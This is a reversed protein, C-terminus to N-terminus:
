RGLMMYFAATLAIPCGAPQFVIGQINAIAGLPLNPIAFSQSARGLADTRFLVGPLEASNGDAIIFVDQYAPPTGIDLAGFCAPAAAQSRQSGGILLLPQLPPGQWDLTLNEGPRLIVPFPGPTGDGFAGIGNVSLSALPTNALGTTSPAALILATHATTRSPDSADVGSTAGFTGDIGSTAQCANLLTQGSGEDCRYYAVLGTEDGALATMMAARLEIESRATNWVRIEDLQGLFGDAWRTGPSYDADAAVNGITLGSTTPILPTADVATAEVVGDVYLKIAAGQRVLALHHMRGDLLFTSGDLITTDNLRARPYAYRSGLTFGGTSTLALDMSSVWVYDYYSDLRGWAEVTFDGFGDLSAHNPVEVYRTPMFSSTFDIAGNTTPTIYTLGEYVAAQGAVLVEVSARYGSGAPVIASIFTDTYATTAAPRGGITVLGATSFNLGHIELAQGGGIDATARSISTIVPADYSVTTSGSLGGVATIALELDAGVGAPTTVLIQNHGQQVAPCPIGGLTAVAGSAGFSTGTVTVVTGGALALRSPTAATITPADYPRMAALSSQGAVTVVIPVNPGTGPPATFALATHPTTHQVNSAAAGGVTVVAGAAGFNAGNLTVVAGGSTPGLPSAMTITPPDYAFNVSNASLGAVSVTVPNVLGAGPPMTFTILNDQRGTVTAVTAGVAVVLAAECDDTGFNSGAITVSYGGATAGHNPVIGTVSPGAYLLPNSPASAQGGVTVVVTPPANTAPPTQCVITQHATLTQVSPCVQGGITVVAPGAGFSSGDITITTGGARAITSPTISTISPPAYSFSTNALSAQASTQVVIPRNVGSGAPLTAVISNPSWVAIPTCVVGDCFVIGTAQGFNSGSITILTGGATPASTPQVTAITPRDYSYANALTDSRGDFASVTVPVDVDIGAPALVAIADHTWSTVTAAAIGFHVSGVAAGFNEGAIVVPNAGSAPGRNPLVSDISPASYGAQLTNSSQGDVVVHVPVAAGIGVPVVCTILTHPTAVLVNTAAVNDVFVLANALGLNTGTITLIAGGSTSGLCPTVTTLLPPLYDVTSPLANQGGARVILGHGTGTGAPLSVTISTPTQQIPILTSAGFLVTASGPNGFGEGSIVVQGGSTPVTSPVVSNVTPPDYSFGGALTATQGGADVSLALGAGVGIPTECTLSLHNAAVVVNTCAIGGISVQTGSAGFNTGTVTITESGNGSGHNPTAGSVTPAPYSIAIPGSSQGDLTYSVTHGLGQGAPMAFTFQAFSATLPAGISVGDLYVTGSYGSSGFNSGSVTVVTGAATTPLIPPTITTIEPADYHFAGASTVTQGQAVVTVGVAAGAGVPSAVVIRDHTWSQVLAGGGGFIVQNGNPGFNTGNVTVLTGGMTPGNSPNISAITPAGYAYAVAASAQGAVVVVLAHNSGFGAPATCTLRTHAVAHTVNTCVLGDILVLAGSQGFNQGDITITSGSTLSATPTGTVSPPQYGYFSTPATQGAVSLAIPVASGGGPPAVFTISAHSHQTITALVGNISVSPNMGFNSGTLVIPTGGSTAAPGGTISAIAPPDYHFTFSGGAGATPTISVTINTGEGPPVVFVINTSTWLLIESAALTTTGFVITGGSGMATGSVIAVYGGDTAHDQFYISTPAGGTSRPVDITALVAPALALFLVLALSKTLPMM